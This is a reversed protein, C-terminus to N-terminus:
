KAAVVVASDAPAPALLTEALTKQEALWKKYDTPTDVVIDMQMNWHSSGCIKACLLVYKFKPNKLKAQMQATTITPTFHMQTSMGPVCNMQSRFHPMYASHIVDRSRMKFNVPVGVPIHMEGKVIKDDQSTTSDMLIGLENAGEIKLYNNPGLKNDAGAYRATWNFQQAYLEIEQMGETPLATITNWSKIGYAIIVTLVIAPVITWIMELKNNHSYFVAKQGNKGSYKWTFFALFLHTIVFPIAIIILNLNMLWDTIKGHESASEPLLRPGYEILQWAVFAFFAAFYVVFLKGQLENDKVTSNESLTGKMKRSLNYVNMLQWMAYFALALVVIILKVM